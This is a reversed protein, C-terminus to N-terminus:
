CMQIYLKDDQGPVQYHDHDPGVQLEQHHLELEGDGERGRKEVAPHHNTKGPSFNILLVSKFTLYRRRTKSFKLDGGIVM